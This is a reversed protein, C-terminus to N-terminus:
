ADVLEQIRALVKPLTAQSMLEGNITVYPAKGRESERCMGLCTAGEIEVRSRLEPSLSEELLLIDSAGMVFCATGSCIVVKIKESM